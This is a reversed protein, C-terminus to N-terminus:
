GFIKTNDKTSQISRYLSTKYSSARKEISGDTPLPDQRTHSTLHVEPNKMLSRGMSYVACFCGAGVAAVVPLRIRYETFTLVVPIRRFPPFPPIRRPWTRAKLNM